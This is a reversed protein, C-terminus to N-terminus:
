KKDPTVKEKLGQKIGKVAGRSMGRVLNEAVGEDRSIPILTKAVIDDSTYPLGDPGNSRVFLGYNWVGKEMNWTYENGWPDNVGTGGGDKFNTENFEKRALVNADSRAKDLKDSISVFRRATIDDRTEPLGDPGNSRLEVYFGSYRTDKKWTLENGWADTQGTKGGPKFNSENFEEQVYTRVQSTTRNQKSATSEGCGTLLMFGLGAILVSLRM